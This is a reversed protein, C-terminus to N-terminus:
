GGFPANLTFRFKLIKNMLAFLKEEWLHIVRLGVVCDILQVIVENLFSIQLIQAVVSEERSDRLILLVKCIRPMASNLFSGILNFYPLCCLMDHIM